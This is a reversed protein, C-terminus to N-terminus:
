NPVATATGASASGCVRMSPKMPRSGAQRGGPRAPQGSGRCSEARCAPADPVSPPSSWCSTWRCGPRRWRRPRPPRRRGRPSCTTSSCSRGAGHRCVPSRERSSGCTPPSTRPGRPPTSAWRTGPAAPCPSRPCSMATGTAPSGAPSACCTTAAASGPPRRAPPRPSSSAAATPSGPSRTGSPPPWRSPSTGGAGSRTPSSPTGPPAPTPRSRWPRRCTPGSRPPCRAGCPVRAPRACDPVRRCRRGAAAARPPCCWTSWPRWCPPSCAGLSARGAGRGGPDRRVQPRAARGDM